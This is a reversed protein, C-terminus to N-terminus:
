SVNKTLQGKGMVPASVTRVMPGCVETRAPGPCKPVVGHTLFCNIASYLSDNGMVERLILRNVNQIILPQLVARSKRLIYVHVVVPVVTTSKFKFGTTLLLGLLRPLSMTVYSVLHQKLTREFASM